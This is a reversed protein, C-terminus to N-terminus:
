AVVIVEVLGELARGLAADCTLLPAGLLGALVAYFADHMGVRDRLAFAPELMPTLSVRQAPLAEVFAIAALAQTTDIDGHRLGRRIAAGCEADFHAPVFVGQPVELRSEVRSALQTRLAVETAASADLVIV